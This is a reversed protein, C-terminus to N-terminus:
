HYDVIEIDHADGDAWRFCIRWQKNIRISHRGARDGALKELRDGPVAALDELREAADLHRLKRLAVSQINSPLKRAQQRDFLAATQSDRFSRIVIYYYRSANNTALDLSHLVFLLNLREEGLGPKQRPM